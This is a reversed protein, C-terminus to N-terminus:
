AGLKRAVRAVKPLVAADNTGGGTDKNIGHIVRDLVEATRDADRADKEARLRDNHRIMEEVADHGRQRDHTVLLLPLHRLNAGPRKARTVARWQGDAELRALVWTPERFQPRQELFLALNPDGEWGCSPDGHHLRDLVDQVVPDIWLTMYHGTRPDRVVEPYSLGNPMGGPYCFARANGGPGGRM